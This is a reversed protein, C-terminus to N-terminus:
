RKRGRLVEAVATLGMEEAIHLPTKGNFDKASTHAGNKLLWVVMDPQNFMVAGHLPTSVGEGGNVPAGARLLLHAVRQQGTIAAFYLAPIGHAGQAQAQRPDDTLLVDVTDPLGLMAATCIDLPAGLGLLYEVIDKRAMQAAAQVPTEGWRARANVLEPNQTLIERVRELNGHANGVLDDILEQTVTEKKAM